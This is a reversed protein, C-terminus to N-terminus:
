LTLSALRNEAVFILRSAIKLPALNQTDMSEWEEIVCVANYVAHRTTGKIHQPSIDPSLYKQM